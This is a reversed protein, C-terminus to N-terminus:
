PLLLSLINYLCSAMDSKAILFLKNILQYRCVNIIHNGPEGSLIIASFLSHEQEQTAYTGPLFLFKLCINHLLPKWLVLYSQLM